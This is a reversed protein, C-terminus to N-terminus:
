LYFDQQGAATDHKAIMSVAFQSVLEGEEKTWLDRYVRAFCGEFGGSLLKLPWSSIKARYHFMPMASILQLDCNEYVSSIVGNDLNVSFPVQIDKAFSSM